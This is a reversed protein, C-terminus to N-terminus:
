TEDQTQMQDRGPIDRIEYEYEIGGDETLWAWGRDRYDIALTAPDGWPRVHFGEREADDPNHEVWGHCGTTGHGCLMVCNSPDWPGGQSKKKRHHLTVM